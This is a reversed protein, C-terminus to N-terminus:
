ECLGNLRRGVDTEPQELVAAVFPLEIRRGITALLGLLAQDVGPAEIITTLLRDLTEPVVVEIELWGTQTLSLLQEVYFPNGDSAAILEVLQEDALATGSSAFEALRVVDEPALPRLKLHVLDTDSWPATFDPRATLILM